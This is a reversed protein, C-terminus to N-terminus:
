VEEAEMRAHEILDRGTRHRQDALKRIVERQKGMKGTVSLWQKELSEVRENKGSLRVTTPFELFEEEIRAAISVLRDMESEADERKQDLAQGGHEELDGRFSGAAEPSRVFTIDPGAVVDESVSDPVSFSEMLEMDLAELAM